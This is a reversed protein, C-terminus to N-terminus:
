KSNAPMRYGSYKEALVQAKEPKVMNLIDAANKKKMKALIEIVLDEDLAEFVKAAQQPKMNSYVQVLTDIKSEDAKIREQLVSSIKSRVSELSKLKSEIEEKQKALDEAFKNLQEERQDLQKQRESLKFLYDADNVQKKNEEKAVSKESDSKGAKSTEQKESKPQKVEEAVAMGMTIEIKKFQAEVWDINEFAIYGMVGLILFSFFSFIPFSRRQKQQHQRQQSMAKKVEKALDIPRGTKKIKKFHKDYGTKM